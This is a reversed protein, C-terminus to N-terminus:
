KICWYEAFHLANVEHGKLDFVRYGVSILFQFVDNANLGFEPLFMPHVALLIRPPYTGQLLKTAGKLVLLEAGEVDIKIVLSKCAQIEEVEDIRVTAVQVKAASNFTIRSMSDGAIESSFGIMEGSKESAAHHLIKIRDLSSNLRVHETLESITAPNAEIAVIPFRPELDRSALVSFFGINAGVDLFGDAQRLATRLKEFVLPEYIGSISRYKPILRYNIGGIEHELYEVKSVVRSWASAFFSRVRSESSIQAALKRFIRNLQSAIKL